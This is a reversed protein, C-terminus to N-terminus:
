AISTSKLSWRATMVTMQRVERVRPRGRATLM